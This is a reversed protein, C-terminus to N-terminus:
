ERVAFGVQHHPVTTSVAVTISTRHAHENIGAGDGYERWSAQAEPTLVQADGASRLIYGEYVGPVPIGSQDYGRDPNGSRIASFKSLGVVARL